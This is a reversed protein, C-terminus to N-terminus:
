NIYIKTSLRVLIVDVHEEGIYSFTSSVNRYFFAFLCIFFINM